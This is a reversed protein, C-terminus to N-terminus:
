GNALKAALALAIKQAEITDQQARQKERELALVEDKHKVEVELEKVRLGQADSGCLMAKQQSHRLSRVYFEKKTLYM